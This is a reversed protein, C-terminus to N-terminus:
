AVFHLSGDKNLLEALRAPEIGEANDVSNVKGRFSRQNSFNKGQSGTDATFQRFSSNMDVDFRELNVGSNSLLTKIEHIGSSLIEKAAHNDTIINVKLNGNSHDLTMVLRGLEPPKLQIKLVNEGQNVARVISKGVQRTIHAPLNKFGAGSKVINLSHNKAGGTRMGSDAAVERFSEPRDKGARNHAFERIERTDKKSDLNRIRSEPLLENMKDLGKGPQKGSVRNMGKKLDPVKAKRGDKDAGSPMFGPQFENKGKVASFRFTEPESSNKEMKLSSFLDNLIKECDHGHSMSMNESLGDHSGREQVSLKSRLKELDTILETLTLASSRDKTRELGMQEMVMNFNTDSKKTRYQNGSLFCTKQLDNLEDILDDLSIGKADRSAGAMIDNIRDDQIGLSIFISHLFAMSSSDLLNEHKLKLKSEPEFELQEARDFFKDLTLSNNDLDDSLLEMLGDIDDQDFGAKALIKRLADLGEADMSIDKLSGGSLNLFFKKLSSLLAQGKQIDMKGTMSEMSDDSLDAVQEFGASHKGELHSKELTRDLTGAFGSPDSSSTYSVVQDPIGQQVINLFANNADALMFNM